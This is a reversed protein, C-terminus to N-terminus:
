EDDDGDLIRKAREGIPDDGKDMFVERTKGGAQERGILGMQKLEDLLRAARPYGIRMKRQLLSASATGHKKVIEIAQEIQGDKDAVAQERALMEDWPAPENGAVPEPEPAPKPRNAPPRAKRVQPSVPIPRPASPPHDDEAAPRRGSPAGGTPAASAEAGRSPAEPRRESAERRRDPVNPGLGITPVDDDEVKPQLAERYLDAQEKWWDVVRDIEGDSIFCGQIRAPAQAEPSQFLMDGKGLLSEAGVSDLIVRSDIGSTVAFAIRAPFNAKILGTVVDTSPRQTAVVMHIGTARAMQALRVVIRETEDPAQMMLDALEDIFVVMRPLREADKKRATKATYTDINRVHHEEFVKYRREMERVTWRLVGLVRTVETEVKGYLHPVGNFRVLEVMKPDVMVLRLDDPTNNMILCSIMATIAVSKGSGTTGAILLHPMKGLDAAYPAGDVERGLALALPGKMRAYQESEMVPRLSVIGPQMNPVEIGIYNTGLVPAQIRVSPAALALSLDRALGAVRTVRVRQVVKNGDEDEVETFPTVAYQTVTPGAKVSLVRVAMGFDRATEEIILASMNIENDDPRVFRKDDLMELPPLKDSRKRPRRREVLEELRFRQTIPKGIADYRAQLREIRTAPQGDARTLPATGPRHADPRALMLAGAGREGTVISPRGPIPPLEIALPGDVAEM